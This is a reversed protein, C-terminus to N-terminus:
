KKKASFNKLIQDVAELHKGAAWTEQIKTEEWGASRALLIFGPLAHGLSKWRAMDVMSDLAREKLLALTTADRGETLPVLAFSAKNRDTWIISNMQEIFWTPSIKLAPDKSLNALVTLAALSRTANNRVGDDPDRIAYLLDDLAKTKDSVYGIVYAAIARETEDAGNRLVNRIAILHKDALAPFKEQEARAPAFAMLSHGKTLDEATKGDRVAINLQDFFTNWTDVIEEPLRLETNSPAERYDFTPAGKELIGVYLIAKGEECCIAELNARVVNNVLEIQLEIEGKSRPLPSGVKVELAKEIREKSAKRLGYYDIVGIVPPKIAQQASLAASCLFLARLM